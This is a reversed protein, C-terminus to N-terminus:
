ESPKSPTAVQSTIIKEAQTADEPRVFPSILDSKGKWAYPDVGSVMEFDRFDDTTRPRSAVSWPLLSRANMVHNVIARRYGSSRTNNLSRHLLYGHFIVVDGADVELPVGGEREYPFDFAEDSTDFRSDGHKKTPWLIGQKHSGPHVWLGGNDIRADDLAIWVGALSQDRTPIYYEDQHWAQGPKGANKIFLMSQMCKIDPGIAANLFRVIEPQTLTARVRESVKHPFHVALVQKMLEDPSPNGSNLAEVGGVAGRQGSCIAIAESRLEAVDQESFVKKLVAYGDEDYARCLDSIIESTKM